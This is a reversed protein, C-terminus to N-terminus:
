PGKEEESGAEGERQKPGRRPAKVNVVGVGRGVTVRGTEM